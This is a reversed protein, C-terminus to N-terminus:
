SGCLESVLKQFYIYYSLKILPTPQADMFSDFEDDDVDGEAPESDDEEGAKANGPAPETRPIREPIKKDDEDEEEEADKPTPNTFPKSALVRRRLEAM